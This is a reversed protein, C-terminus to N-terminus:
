GDVRHTELTSRIRNPIRITKHEAYDFHVMVTTGQVALIDNQWVQQGIHLSSTGIHTLYTRIEVQTGYFLEALFSIEYQALILQWTKPDLNPSFIRFVPDRASEFWNPIITNSIHGLADTDCFMPTMTQTFM